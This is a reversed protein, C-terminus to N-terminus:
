AKHKCPSMIIGSYIPLISSLLDKAYPPRTLIAEMECAVNEFLTCKTHIAIPFENFNPWLTRILLIWELMQEPLPKADVLSCVM